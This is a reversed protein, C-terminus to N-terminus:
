AELRLPRLRTVMAWDFGAADAAAHTRRLNHSNSNTRAEVRPKCGSSLMVTKYWGGYPKVRM